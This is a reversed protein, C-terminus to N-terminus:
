AEVKSLDVHYVEDDGKSVVGAAEMAPLFTNSLIQQTLAGDGKVTPDAFVKQHWDQLTKGELLTLAQVKPSVKPTAVAGEMGEISAAELCERIIPENTERDKGFNHGPTLKLEMVKGKCDNLEIGDPVVNNFSGAFIGWTSNEKDSYRIGIQAIPFEYPSESEIVEIDKFFLDVITGPFNGEIARASYGDFTGKFQRLPSREYGKQLGRTKIGGSETVM